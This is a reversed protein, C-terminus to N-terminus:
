DLFFVGDVVVLVLVREDVGVATLVSCRSFCPSKGHTSAIAFIGKSCSKGALGLISHTYGFLELSM